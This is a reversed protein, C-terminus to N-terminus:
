SGGQNASKWQKNKKGGKRKTSLANEEDNTSVKSTSSDLAEENTLLSKLEALTPEKSWGRTATILGKYETRLGHIIIRKTRMETIANQPDLKSIEDCISKVKSFYQGVIINQMSISYNMRSSKSIQMMPKQLCHRFLTGRRRRHRPMKSGSCYTM